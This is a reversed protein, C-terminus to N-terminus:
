KCNRLRRRSKQRVREQIPGGGFSHFLYINLMNQVICDFHSLHISIKFDNHVVFLFTRLGIMVQCTWDHGSGHMLNLAFTVKSANVPDVNEM